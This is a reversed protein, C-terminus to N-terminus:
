SLTVKIHDSLSSSSSAVTASDSSVNCEDAVTYTIPAKGVTQSTATTQCTIKYPSNPNMYPVTCCCIGSGGNRPDNPCNRCPDNEYDKSTITWNLHKSTDDYDPITVNDKKKVPPVFPMRIVQDDDDFTYTWGCNTCMKGRKPPYCTLVIDSIDHGCKPCTEIIKM